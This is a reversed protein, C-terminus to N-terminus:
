EKKIEEMGQKMNNKVFNKYAEPDSESLNDLMKWINEAQKMQDGSMGGM